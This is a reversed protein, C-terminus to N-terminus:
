IYTGTAGFRFARNPILRVRVSRANRSDPPLEWGISAPLLTIGDKDLTPTLTASLWHAWTVGGDFSQELVAVLANGSGITWDAGTIVIDFERTGDPLTWPTSTREASSRANSLFTRQAM